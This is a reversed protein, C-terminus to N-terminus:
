LGGTVELVTGTIYSAQDSLLFSVADAIESAQGPRGLPIRSSLRQPRDPEGARAHITTDTIGPSVANVRIGSGALERALGVTLANLGAKTAAYAVYEGPSGTRAAASSINVIGFPGGEPEKAWRRVTERCLRTPAVLNVATVRALDADTLEAITGLPGTVGANNVLAVVSGLGQAADLLRAPADHDTVDLRLASVDQGTARTSQVVERAQVDSESHTFLVSFGERALREVISRGIGRSGGTVVAVPKPNSSM